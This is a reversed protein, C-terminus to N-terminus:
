NYFGTGQRIAEKHMENQVRRSFYENPDTRRLERYYAANKANQNQTQRPAVGVPPTAPRNNDPKAVSDVLKLFGSPSSQAMSTLFEKSVELASAIETLKQNYDPGFREKLGERTVNVNAERRDKDKEVRLLKQVEEAINVPSGPEQRNTDPIESTSPQTPKQISNLMAEVTTRTQLDARLESLEKELNEIHKDAHVIKKAVADNDRFKKGDGVLDEFKVDPTNDEFLDM